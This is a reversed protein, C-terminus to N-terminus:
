LAPDTPEKIRLPDPPLETALSQVAGMRQQVQAQARETVSRRFAAMSAGRAQVRVSEWAEAARM